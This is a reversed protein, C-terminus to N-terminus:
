IKYPKLVPENDIFTEPTLTPILKESKELLSVIFSRYLIMTSPNSEAIISFLSLPRFPIDGLGDKNLDYGEYKDWYNKNFNNLVLFGNTGVDFTNSIFNNKAVQVDMCSSQIRLGWGNLIFNNYKFSIRSSGEMLVATTNKYFYNSEIDSDSIEKLLVGYAADGWSKTFYNYIMNVYKSYMVAVGSGNERFYNQIYSDHNSFMFHLGYRINQISLNRTIVSNNVFEFYIGDRHKKITNDLILLSDSKWCHIGNGSNSESIANSTIINKEIRSNSSAEAYIGFFNNELYNNRITINRVKSFKIAAFDETSSTGSNIIKFGEVTVNSSHITIIEYKKEGDIVPYGVGKLFVAKDILIEGEKYTGAHVLITDNELALAIASKISKLTGNKDVNIIRASFCNFNILFLITLLYLRM